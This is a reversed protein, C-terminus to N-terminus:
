RFHVGKIQGQIVGGGVRGTERARLEAAAAGAKQSYAESTNLNEDIEEYGIAKAAWLVADELDDPLPPVQTGSYDPSSLAVLATITTGAAPIGHIAVKKSEATFRPAYAGTAWSPLVAKGAELEWHQTTSVRIYNPDGGVKLALVDVVNAPLTYLAQDAVAPGLELEDKLSRSEVVLRRIAQNVVERARTTSVDFGGAEPSRYRAVLDDFSRM